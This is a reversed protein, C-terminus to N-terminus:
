SAQIPRLFDWDFSDSIGVGPCAWTWVRLSVLLKFLQFGSVCVKQRSEDNDLRVPVLDDSLQDVRDLNPALSTRHINGVNM